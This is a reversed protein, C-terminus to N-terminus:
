MMIISNIKAMSKGGQSVAGLSVGAYKPIYKIVDGGSGPATTLRSRCVTSNTVIAIPPM